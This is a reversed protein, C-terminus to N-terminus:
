DNIFRPPTAVVNQYFGKYALISHVISWTIILLTSRVAKGNSFYYLCITALTVGIFLINISNNFDPIM